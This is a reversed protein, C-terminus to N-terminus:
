VHPTRGIVRAVDRPLPTGKPDWGADKLAAYRAELLDTEDDIFVKPSNLAVLRLKRRASRLFSVWAAYWPEFRRPDLTTLGEPTRARLLALADDPPLGIEEPRLGVAALGPTAVRAGFRANCLYFDTCVGTEALETLAAQPPGELTHPELLDDHSQIAAKAMLMGSLAIKDPVLMYLHTTTEIRGAVILRHSGFDPYRVDFAWAIPSDEHTAYSSGEVVGLTGAFERTARSGASERIDSAKMVAFTENKGAAEKARDEQAFSAMLASLAEAKTLKRKGMAPRYLSQANRSSACGEACFGVQASGEAPVFRLASPEAADALGLV